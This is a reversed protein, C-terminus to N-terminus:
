IELLLVTKTTNSIKYKESYKGNNDKGQFLMEQPPIWLIENGICVFQVLDRKSKPIKEDVFLDQLKKSGGKIPLYDGNQRTRVHLNSIQNPHEQCFKEYDFAAFSKSRNPSYEKIPIIQPFIRLVSIPPLEPEEISENSQDKSNAEIYCTEYERRVIYGHPLNLMASPNDSLVLNITDIVNDFSIDTDLGIVSFMKLVLRTSIALPMDLLMNSSFKIQNKPEINEGFNEAFIQDITQDLFEEDYSAMSSFKSIAEKIKPNYNQELYPILELRIKNRMFETSDNSDDHNPSLNNETIYQEIEKRSIHLLPRLINFGAQSIRYSPIGGFGQIGTGRLLRFLVTEVNDDMNHATLIFISNQIIESAEERDQERVDEITSNYVKSAVDDFVMYRLERGAEELGIKRENAYKKCDVKVGLMNLGMSECTKLTHEMEADAKGPRLMHNVHVPMITLKLTERLTHLAHLLTLSDPGGSVGVILISNEPIAYILEQKIRQTAENM